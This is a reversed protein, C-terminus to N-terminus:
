INQANLANEINGTKKGYYVVRHLMDVFGQIGAVQHTIATRRNNSVDDYQKISDLEDLLEFKYQYVFQAFDPNSLLLGAREGAIKVRERQHPGFKELKNMDVLRANFAQIVDEQIM